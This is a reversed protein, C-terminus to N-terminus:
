EHHLEFCRLLCLCAQVVHPTSHIGQWTTEDKKKYTHSVHGSRDSAKKEQVTDPANFDNNYMNTTSTGKGTGVVHHVHESGTFQQIAGQQIAGQRKIGTKQERDKAGQRKIGRM